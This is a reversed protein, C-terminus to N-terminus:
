LLSILKKRSIRTPIIHTLITGKPCVYYRSIWDILIMMETTLVPYPDIIEDIEKLSQGAIDTEGTIHVIIGTRNKNRFHIKVRKGVAAAKDLDPPILYHFGRNLHMNFPIVEAINRKNM